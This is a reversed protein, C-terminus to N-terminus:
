EGKQQSTKEIAERMAPRASLIHAEMLHRALLSDGARIAAVIERHHAVSRNRREESFLGYKVSMVSVNWLPELATLLRSNGAALAVSRHFELNVSSIEAVDAAPKLAVVDAMRDCLTDLKALEGAGIKRAALSAAYGELMARMEAMEVLEEKGFSAVRAGSNPTLNVLGEMRLQALANRIPTRSLGLQAGITDEPLRSGVAFQGSLILEKISHYALEVSNKTPNTSIVFLEKSEAM